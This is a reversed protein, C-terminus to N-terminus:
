GWKSTKIRDYPVTGTFLTYRSGGPKTAILDVQATQEIDDLLRIKTSLEWLEVEDNATQGRAIGTKM